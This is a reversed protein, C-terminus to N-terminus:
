PVVGSSRLPPVADTGDGSWIQMLKGLPVERTPSGTRTVAVEVNLQTGKRPDRIPTAWVVM